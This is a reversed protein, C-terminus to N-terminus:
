PASERDEPPRAAPDPPDLRVPPVPPNPVDAPRGDPESSQDPLTAYSPQADATADVLPHAQRPRTVPQPRRRPIVFTAALLLLTIVVLTGIGAIVRSQGVAAARGLLARVSDVVL